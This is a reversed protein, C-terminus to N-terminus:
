PKRPPALPLSDVQWHQIHLLLPNSGLTPFIGRLLLFHCRVGTNKDPPDGHISSGPPGYDMPNCLTPCSQLTRVCVCSELMQM